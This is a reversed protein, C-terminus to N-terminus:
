GSRYWTLWARAPALAVGDPWQEYAIKATDIGVKGMAEKAEPDDASLKRIIPAPTESPAMIGTWLELERPIPVRHSSHEGCCFVPSGISAVGSTSIVVKHPM